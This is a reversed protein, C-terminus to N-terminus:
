GYYSRKLIGVYPLNRFKQDYDLGFGVVFENPIEFGVYDAKIDKLRRTPKDLLTVVKVDAAGKNYLMSVVEALTNGTDIIDEVILISLGKVSCDLDKNIRIDGSSETGQYSSVDMFDYAIEMDIHKILEALFPVSGRLLAVLYPLQNKEEYDKKIQKGLEKCRKVIEEESVLVKDVANHM